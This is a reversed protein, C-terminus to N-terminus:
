CILASAEEPQRSGQGELVAGHELPLALLPCRAPHMRRRNETFHLFSYSYNQKKIPVEHSNLFIM